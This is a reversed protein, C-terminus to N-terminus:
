DGELWGKKIEVTEMWGLRKWIRSGDSNVYMEEVVPFLFWGMRIRIRGTHLNGRISYSPQPKSGQPKKSM